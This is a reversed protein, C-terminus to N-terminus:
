GGGDGLDDLKLNAPQPVRRSGPFTFSPTLDPGLSRGTEPKRALDVPKLGSLHFEAM